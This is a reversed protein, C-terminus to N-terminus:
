RPLTLADDIAHGESMAPAGMEMLVSLTPALDIMRPRTAFVGPKIGRGMLLIPVEADYAWPTGHSTGHAEGELVHFPRTVLLVDGSRGAWYGHRLVEGLGAADTAALDDRSVALQLDPQASLVTAAARRVAVVDLKKTELAKYDLYLDTEEIAAVLHAVGFKKELEDDVVKQLSSPSVRVGDM